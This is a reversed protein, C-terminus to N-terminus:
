GRLEPGVEVEVAEGVAGDIPGFEAPHLHMEDTLHACVTRIGLASRVTSNAASSSIWVSFECLYEWSPRASSARARAEGLFRGPGVTM